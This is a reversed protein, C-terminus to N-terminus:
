RHFLNFRADRLRGRGEADRSGVVGGQADHGRVRPGFLNRDDALAVADLKTDAGHGFAGPHNM